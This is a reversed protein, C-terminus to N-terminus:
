PFRILLKMITATDHDFLSPVYVSLGKVTLLYKQQPSASTQGSVALYNSEESDQKSLKRIKDRCTGQYQRGHRNMMTTWRHNVARGVTTLRADLPPQAANRRASYRKMRRGFLRKR